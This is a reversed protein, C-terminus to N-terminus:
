MRGRFCTLLVISANIQPLKCNGKNVQDRWDRSRVLKFISHPCVSLGVLQYTYSIDIMYITGNKYGM